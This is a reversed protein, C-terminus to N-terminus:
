RKVHPTHPLNKKAFQTTPFWHKCLRMQFGAAPLGGTTEMETEYFVDTIPIQLRTTYPNHM